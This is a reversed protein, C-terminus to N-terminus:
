LPINFAINIILTNVNKEHDVYTYYFNTFLYPMCLIFFFFQNYIFNLKSIFQFYLIQIHKLFNPYIFLLM